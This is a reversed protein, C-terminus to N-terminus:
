PGPSGEAAPPEKEGVLLLVGGPASLVLKEIWFGIHGFLFARAPDILGALLQVFVFERVGEGGVTPTLLTALTMVLAAFLVTGADAAERHALGSLVVDYMLATSVHGFVALVVAVLLTGRNDKWASLADLVRNAPEGFRGMRKPLPALLARWGSPALLLGLSLLAGAVIVAFVVAARQPDALPLTRWGFPFFAALVLALSTTGILKDVAVVAASEVVRGTRRASDVLRYGDLGLTGPTVIGFWRGVFFSRLLVGYSLSIGQARLLLMWRCTNAFIGSLKIVVALLFMPWFRRPEIAQIAAVIGEPRLEPRTVLFLLILGTVVWPLLRRIM